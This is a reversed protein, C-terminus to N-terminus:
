HRPAVCQDRLDYADHVYGSRTDVETYVKIWFDVDPQLEPPQPFLDTLEQLMIQATQWGRLLKSSDVQPCLTLQKEGVLERLGAASARAQQEGEAVLPFPQHASPTDPLQRYAGHRVIAAILRPM